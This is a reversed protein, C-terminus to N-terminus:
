YFINLFVFSIVWKIHLLVQFSEGIEEEKREGERRRVRDGERDGDM